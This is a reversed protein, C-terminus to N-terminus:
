KALARLEAATLARDYIRVDDLIGKFYFSSPSGEWSWVHGPENFGLTDFGVKWYGAKYGLYASTIKPNAAVQTGDVYLTMGAGSLCAAV